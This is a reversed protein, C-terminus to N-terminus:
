NMPTEFSLETYSGARYVETGASGSHRSVKAAEAPTTALCVVLLVLLVSPVATLRVSRPMM